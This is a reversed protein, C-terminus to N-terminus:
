DIIGFNAWRADGLSVWGLPGGLSPNENFVVTGKPMNDAPPSPRTLFQMNGIQLQAIETTGDSKLTVNNKGNSSLILDHDRRTGFQATNLSIKGLGLEIEEDWISLATSPDMTNIGVRRNTTYLTESLLTEGATQLDRLVGVSQLRSNLVATTLTNGEIVVRNDITLQAIDLTQTQLYNLIRDQTASSISNVDELINQYTQSNRPISGKIILDGDVVANGRVELSAAYLTNEFVTGADMITLQCQTARDDIGSSAFNAVVGGAINDGSIRLSNLDIASAPICAPALSLHQGQTNLVDTIATKVLPELDIRSIKQDVVTGVRATYDADIREIITNGADIIRADLGSLDPQFLAVQQHVETTIITNIRDATILENIRQTVTEAISVRVQEQVQQLVQQTIDNVLNGFSDNLAM